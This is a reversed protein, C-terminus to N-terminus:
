VIARHGFVKRLRGPIRNGPLCAARLLAALLLRQRRMGARLDRSNGQRGTLCRAIRRNRRRARLLFCNLRAHQRGTGRYPASQHSRWPLEGRGGSRINLGALRNLGALWTGCDPYGRDDGGSLGRLGGLGDM